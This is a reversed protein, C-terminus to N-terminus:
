RRWVHVTPKVVLETGAPGKVHPPVFVPRRWSRKPGCAQQRWHGRVLHQRTLHREQTPPDIGPDDGRDERRAVERLSVVTIRGPMAPKAFPRDPDWRNYRVGWTRGVTPQQALLWTAGVLGWLAQGEPDHARGNDDVIIMGGDFGYPMRDRGPWPVPGPDRCITAIMMGDLLACWVVGRVEVPLTIDAGQFPLTLGSGGDWWLIGAPSPRCVAPTWEILTEAAARALHVMPKTVYWLDGRQTADLMSLLTTETAVDDRHEDVSDLEDVYRRAHSTLVTQLEPLDSASISRERRRKAM